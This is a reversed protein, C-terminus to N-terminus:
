APFGPRATSGAHTSRVPPGSDIPVAWASDIEVSVSRQLLSICLVLRDRRRIDLIRGEVGDLAGGNIRVRQGTWLYPHPSMAFGSSVAQQMAEIEDPDIPVPTKGIGVIRLVSPTKLIPVRGELAFRCFVYGPFLPADVEKIRDSWRRRRRYLPLFRPYGKYELMNAVRTEHTTKVQVAFWSPESFAPESISEILEVEKLKPLSM